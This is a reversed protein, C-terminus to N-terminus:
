VWWKKPSLVSREYSLLEGLSVANRVNLNTIVYIDDLCYLNLLKKNTQQKVKVFINNLKRSLFKLVLACRVRKKEFSLNLPDVEASM